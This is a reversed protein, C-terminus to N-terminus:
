VVQRKKHLKAPTGMYIGYDETTKSVVSGAAIVCGKKITVGDLVIVVAGIWVDDEIRIGKMLVGQEVIPITADEFVHNGPFISSHAAIRVNDGVILGGHGYLAAFSNISCNRGITIAGGASHILAFPQIITNEGISIAGMIKTMRNMSTCRIMSYPCITVCKGISINSKGYILSKKSILATKDIHKFGRKRLFM